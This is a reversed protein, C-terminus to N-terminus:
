SKIKLKLEELYKKDRDLLIIAYIWAINQGIFFAGLCKYAIDVAIFGYVFIATGLLIMAGVFIKLGKNYKM